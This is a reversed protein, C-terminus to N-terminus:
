SFLLQLSATEGEALSSYLLLFVHIVLERYLLLYCHSSEDRCNHREKYSIHINKSSMYMFLLRICVM